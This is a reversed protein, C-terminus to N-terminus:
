EKRGTLGRFRRGLWLWLVIALAVHLTTGACAALMEVSLSGKLSRVNSLAALTLPPTLAHTHLGWLPEILDPRGLVQVIASAIPYLVWHGASLLLLLVIATVSARFSSRSSVSVCMGLGIALASLAASEVVILVAGLPPLAWFVVGCLLLLVLVINLGPQGVVCGLWKGRLVEDNTLPTTLLSDLTQREVERSITGAGRLTLRLMGICVVVPLATTRFVRGIDEKARDDDLAFAILGALLFSVTMTFGFISSIEVFYGNDGQGSTAPVLQTDKWILPSSNGLESRMSRTTVDLLPRPADSVLDSRFLRIAERLCVFSIIGHLMVTGILYLPLDTSLKGEGSHQLLEIYGSIPNLSSLPNAVGAPIIVRDVCGICPVFTLLQILIFGIYASMIAEGPRAINVTLYLSFSAVSLMSFLTLAFSAILLAPDIGGMLFLIALVPVGALLLLVLQCVRALMKGIIIGAPTIDTLLLDNLRGKEREEAISGAVFAPTLLLLVGMQVALFTHFFAAAFRAQDNIHIQQDETIHALGSALDLGFWRLYVAFLVVLLLSTYLARFLAFRGRRATLVADFRLLPGLAIEHSAM